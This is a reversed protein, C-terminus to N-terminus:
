CPLGGYKRLKRIPCITFSFTENENPLLSIQVDSLKTCWDHFASKESESANVLYSDYAERLLKYLVCATVTSISRNRSIHTYHICSEGVGIMLVEDEELLKFSWFGDEVQVVCTWFDAETHLAGVVEFIHKEGHKERFHCQIIKLIALLPQDSIVCATEVTKTLSHAWPIVTLCQKVM